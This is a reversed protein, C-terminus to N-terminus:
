CVGHGVHAQILMCCLFKPMAIPLLYLIQPLYINPQHNSPGGLKNLILLGV